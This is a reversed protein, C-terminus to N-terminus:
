VAKLTSASAHKPFQTVTAPHPASRLEIVRSERNGLLVERPVGDAACKFPKGYKLAAKQVARDRWDKRQTKRKQAAESEAAKEAQPAGHLLQAILNKM